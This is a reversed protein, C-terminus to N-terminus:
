VFSWGDWEELRFYFFFFVTFVFFGDLFEGDLEFGLQRKPYLYEVWIWCKGFVQM